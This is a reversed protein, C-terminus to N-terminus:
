FIISYKEGIRNEISKVAWKNLPSIKMEKTEDKNLVLGWRRQSDPADKHFAEWHLIMLELDEMGAFIKYAREVVLSMCVTFTGRHCSNPNTWCNLQHLTTGKILAKCEPYLADFEILISKKGSKGKLVYGVIM